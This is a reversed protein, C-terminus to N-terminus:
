TEGETVKMITINVSVGSWFLVNTKVNNQKTNLLTIGLIM